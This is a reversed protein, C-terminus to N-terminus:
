YPNSKTKNYFKSWKMLFFKYIYIYIFALHTHLSKCKICNLLVSLLKLFLPFNVLILQRCLFSPTMSFGAYPLQSFSTLHTVWSFRSSSVDTEQTVAALTCQAGKLAFAFQEATQSVIDQQCRTVKSDNRYTRKNFNIESTSKKEQTNKTRASAPLKPHPYTCISNQLQVTAKTRQQNVHKIKM